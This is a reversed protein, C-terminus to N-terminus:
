FSRSVSLLLTDDNAFAGGNVEMGDDVDNFLYALSLDLTAITTSVGVSFDRYDGIDLEKWYDGFSYGAHLDLAVEESLGYSYDLALYQSTEGTNFYDSAHVYGLTLDGYYLNLALEAYDADTDYGPYSYYYLTADWSLQESFEAGYGAYWDVEIDADDDFDINSGWLGVFLGNDFAADLSGQLAPDGASQSIGRFRYDSTLSLTASYDAGQAASAALGSLLLCAPSMWNLKM